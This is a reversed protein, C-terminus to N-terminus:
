WRGLTFVKRTLRFVVGVGILALAQAMGSQQLFYLVSPDIGNLYPNLGNSLFDPIPITDIIAAIATLIGDLVLIFIDSIFDFLAQLISKFWDILDNYASKLWDIM